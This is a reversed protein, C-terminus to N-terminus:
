PLRRRVDDVLGNVAMEVLDLVTEFDASRGNYPDPLDRGEQGAAYDLMLRLEATGRTGRMRNMARMHGADMALVLDSKWFDDRVLPRARLKSLDYGRREAVMQARPDPEEGSHYALTGASDVTVQGDLGALKLHYAMVAEATPSRCINGTCVFLLKM